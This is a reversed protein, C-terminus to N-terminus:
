ALETAHENKFMEYGNGLFSKSEYFEMESFSFDNWSKNESMMAAKEGDNNNNNYSSQPHRSPTPPAKDHMQQFIFPWTLKQPQQMSRSIMDVPEGKLVSALFSIYNTALKLTDLKSLKTDRPVWPIITKLKYFASSLVRMRARERANAANRQIPMGKEDVLDDDVGDDLSEPTSSRKRKPM